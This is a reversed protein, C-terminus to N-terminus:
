SENEQQASTRLATEGTLEEWRRAIVDCYGPDIEIACCARGLQECAILTSGSGAFPDLVVDGEVTSHGIARGVLDVPKMTPHDESRSPRDVEWVTDQKRDQPECHAAGPKWGYFMAEHRYHFDSRGPVFRNKVWVITQRWVGLDTLVQAFDLFQPGAPAMVYWTAGEKCQVLVVRLSVELLDRLDVASDNIITKGRLNIRESPSLMTDGGVHGVGYPPDTWVMDALTGGLVEIHVSPIRADGCIVRHKGLVLKDGPKTIPDAPPKVADPDVLTGTARRMRKAVERMATADFGLDGQAGVDGAVRELATQLKAYDWAALEATRNDAIGFATLDDGVLDTQVADIEEWGEEFAAQLTGNGAIVVGAPTVVIPKQQGFRRLSARIAQINATDHTRVNDPDQQLDVVKLKTVTLSM